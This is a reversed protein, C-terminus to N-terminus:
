STIAVCTTKEEYRNVFYRETARVYKWDIDKLPEGAM